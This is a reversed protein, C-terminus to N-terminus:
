RRLLWMLWPAGILAALVGAPMQQPFIVVRGLWDAVVMLTAGILMTVFMSSRARAFGLLRALHPAMLGVFSMPGIVVTGIATMSAAAVLLVLRARKSSVGLADAVDAGLPLMDLWRSCLYAVLVGACTCLAVVTAMGPLVIYTSGYTLPRLLAAYAGGSSTALMVASQAFASLAIGGLLVQQPAFGSRRGLVVIAALCILAGACASLLLLPASPASVALAAGLMGLMAGGSVGLLEPSAMPNGTMRQLMAGALAVMVGAGLSAVLRPVRWFWVDNWQAANTWQWGHLTVSFRLSVVVGVILLGGLLLAPVALARRPPASEASAPRPAEIHMRSLMWLLLPGGCLAV